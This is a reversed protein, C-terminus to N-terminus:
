RSLQASPANVRSKIFLDDRLKSLRAERCPFGQIPIGFERRSLGPSYPSRSMEAGFNDALESDRIKRRAVGHFITRQTGPFESFSEKYCVLSRTLVQRAQSV